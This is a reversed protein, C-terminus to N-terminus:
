PGPAGLRFTEPSRPVALVALTPARGGAPRRDLPHSQTGIAVISRAGGAGRGGPALAISGLIDYASVRSLKDPAVHTHLATNWLM